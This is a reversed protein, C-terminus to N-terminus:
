IDNKSCVNVDLLCTYNKYSKFSFSTLKGSNIVCLFVGHICSCTSNVLCQLKALKLNANNRLTGAINNTLIHGRGNLATPSNNNQKTLYNVRFYVCLSVFFCVSLTCLIRM